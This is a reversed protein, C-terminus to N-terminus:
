LYSSLETNLRKLARSSLNAVTQYRINMTQEIYQPPQGEYFKMRIVERQRSPLKDVAESLKHHLTGHREADVLRDEASLETSANLHLLGHWTEENRKSQRFYSQLKHRLSGMLYFKVSTVPKLGSRYQHLNIFLDQIADKVLEEDVELTKGYRYLEKYYRQYLRGFAAESGELFDM